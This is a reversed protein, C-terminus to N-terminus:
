KGINDKLCGKIDDYPILVVPCGDSAPTLEYMQYVFVLGNDTIGPDPLPYNDETIVSDQPADAEDHFGGLFINLSDLYQPVTTINEYIPYSYAMQAIVDRRIEKLYEPKVIDNLTLMKGNILNYSRLHNITIGHAGGTYAYSSLRYTIYSNDLYVPYINFSINFPSDYTSITDLQADFAQRQIEIIKDAAQRFSNGSTVLNLVENQPLSFSQDVFGYEILQEGIFDFLNQTISANIDLVTLNEFFIYVDENETKLDMEITTGPIKEAGYTTDNPIEDNPELPKYIEDIDVEVPVIRSPHNCSLICFIFAATLSLLTFKSKLQM